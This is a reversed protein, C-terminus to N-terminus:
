IELGKLFLDLKRKYKLKWLSFVRIYLRDRKIAIYKMLRTQNM